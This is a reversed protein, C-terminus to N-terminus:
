INFFHKGFHPDLIHGIENTGEYFVTTSDSQYIGTLETGKEVNPFIDLMQEYWQKLKESDTYGQSEMEMISREAIDEGKIQRLYHLTLAFPRDTDWTANPAYLTADYADWILFTLRGKGVIEANAIHTRIFAPTEASHGKLPLISLCVFLLLRLM